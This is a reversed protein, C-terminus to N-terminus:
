TGVGPLDEDRTNQNKEFNQRTKKKEPEHIYNRPQCIQHQKM